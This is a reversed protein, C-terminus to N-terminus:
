PPPGFLPPPLYLTHFPSLPPASPRWFTLTPHLCGGGAYLSRILSIHFYATRRLIPFPLATPDCYSWINLLIFLILNPCLYLQSNIDSGRDIFLVFIYSLISLFVSFSPVAPGDEKRICQIQSIPYLPQSLAPSFRGFVQGNGNYPYYLFSLFNPPLYFIHFLNPDRRM